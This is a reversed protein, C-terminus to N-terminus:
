YKVVLYLVLICDSVVINDVCGPYWPLMIWAKLYSGFHPPFHPFMQQHISIFAFHEEKLIILCLFAPGGGGRGGGRGSYHWPSPLVKSQEGM